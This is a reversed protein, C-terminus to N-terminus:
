WAPSGGAGAARKWTMWTPGSSTTSASRWCPAGGGREPGPLRAPSGGPRRPGPAIRHCLSHITGIRVRELDGRWGTSNAVAEFRERLEAAARKSYTCLVLEEPEAAELLLLNVARLAIALTKGTGPGAVGLTPGDRHSILELQGPDLHPYRRLLEPAINLASRM